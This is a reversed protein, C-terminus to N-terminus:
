IRAASGATSGSCRSATPRATSCAGDRRADARARGARGARGGRAGAGARRCGDRRPTAGRTRAGLARPLGLHRRPVAGGRAGACRPVGSRAVRGAPWCRCCSASRARSATACTAAAGRPVPDARRRPVAPRRRRARRAAALPRPDSARVDDWVASADALLSTRCRCGSRGCRRSSTPPSSASAASARGAPFRASRSSSSRRTRRAQATSSRSCTSCSCSTTSTTSSGSSSRGAPASRASSSRTARVSRRRSRRRRAGGPAALFAARAELFASRPVLPLPGEHLVDRWPLASGGLSTRELTHAASDGNTVHLPELSM